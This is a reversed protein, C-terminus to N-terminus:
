CYDDISDGGTWELGQAITFQKEAGEPSFFTGLSTHVYLGNEYTVKALAFPKIGDSDTKVVISLNDISMSFQVITSEGYRNQVFIEGGKLQKMYAILPNDGPNEPCCPFESPTKWERQVAGKTLSPIDTNQEAFSSDIFDIKAGHSVNFYNTHEVNESKNTSKKYIWEGMSGTVSSTKETNIWNQIHELTAQAEEKSVTRMWSIDTYQNQFKDRFKIPDSLFTYIDVGCIYEIRKRTTLNLVANELRTLWRLNEPRNNQRNTDIHDVIHEPSPPIGHFATAVIRHVREGAIELYGTRENAKGFTWMNDSKRPKEIIQPHRLVAGNDRVSYTENKYSCEAEKSFDNINVM